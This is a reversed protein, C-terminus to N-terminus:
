RAGAIRDVMRQARGLAEKPPRLGAVAASFEGQLAESFLVYYPTVPRPRAREVIPLLSAIFAAREVLAPEQYTARRAPNRGYHLGLLLNAEPSTLHSILALAPGRLAAPTHANLALQWGGLAGHGPEGSLTPLPAYGVKGRVPSGERQAENWAYPWNRMFVARGDQFMRRAEEEAASTVSPPSLGTAVRERLHTLAQHAKPTDLELRGERWVEGGHGWVAEFVNCNLGEYQKGQWVYGHLGAQRAMAARAFAELEAFTAPARPVLDARFYLLGVDIYWPVAYTRGEWLVAEVPGPLFDTALADPPFAHSLDAIWGARAFEPIWIVDAVLVHFERAGGELATLYFQHALDSANPILETVLEVEPHARQFDALLARFPGPDGWLPQHKFVLRPRASGSVDASRSCGGVALLAALVACLHLPRRV